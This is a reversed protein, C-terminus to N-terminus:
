NCSYAGWNDESELAGYYTIHPVGLFAGKGIHEVTDPIVLDTLNVCGAFAEDGISIVIKPLEVRRLNKCNQFTRNEIVWRDGWFVIDIHGKDSPKTLSDGYAICECAVLM